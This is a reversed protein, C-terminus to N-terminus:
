ILCESRESLSFSTIILVTIFFGWQPFLGTKETERIAEKKYGKIKKTRKTQRAYCFCLSLAKNWALVRSSSFRKSKEENRSRLLAKQNPVFYYSDSQKTGVVFLIFFLLLLSYLLLCFFSFNQYLFSAGM